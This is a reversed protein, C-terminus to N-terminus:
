RHSGGGDPDDDAKEDPSKAPAPVTVGPPIAPKGM